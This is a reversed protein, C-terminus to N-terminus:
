NLLNELFRKSAGSLFTQNVMRELFAAGPLAPTRSQQCESQWGACRTTSYRKAEM